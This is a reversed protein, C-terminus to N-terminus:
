GKVAKLADINGYGFSRDKNPYFHAAMKLRDLVQQRTWSPYKSWVLAAIGATSATAVSSGGFYNAINNRYGSVPQHNKNKREMVFTFDIEKGEHCVACRKYSSQEKVGTVAIVEPMNAPFIVKFWNTFTTSTGGAAFIMKEKAYAYKIADKIVGSSLLCGISMSIIKVEGIRALQILANVVGHKERYGNLVVDKTGRFSIINCEYAVGIPLSNKNNPAGVASCSSTGHGCKDHSGDITGGGDVFTGQKYINRKSYYENFKSGMNDQYKSVGTDIVAVTIGAGKSYGWAQDIKHKIFNWPIKAGTDLTKYDNIDISDSDSSCGASSKVENETLVYAIPEIYRINKLERLAIITEFKEVKVEINNLLDNENLLIQQQDETKKVLKIINSKITSLTNEEESRFNQNENGYGISIINHGQMAASWLLQDDAIEWNFENKKSNFYQKIRNEIELVTLVKIPDQKKM